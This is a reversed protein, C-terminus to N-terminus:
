EEKECFRITETIPKINKGDHRLVFFRERCEEPSTATQEIHYQAILMKSDSRSILSSIYERGDSIKQHRGNANSFMDLANSDSGDTLDSLTYYRCGAGCSHLGIYYKGAFNVGPPAVLKDM